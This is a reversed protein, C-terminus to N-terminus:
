GAAAECGDPTPGSAQHPIVLNGLNIAANLNRHDGSGRASGEVETGPDTGRECERLPPVEKVVGTRRAMFGVANTSSRRGPRVWEPMAKPAHDSEPSGRQWAQPADREMGPNVTGRANCAM